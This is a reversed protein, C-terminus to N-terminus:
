QKANMVIKHYLKLPSGRTSNQHNLDNRYTPQDFNHHCHCYLQVFQYKREPLNTLDITHKASKFPDFQYSFIIDRNLWCIRVGCDIKLWLWYLSRNRIAICEAFIAVSWRKHAGQRRFDHTLDLIRADFWNFLFSQYHKLSM